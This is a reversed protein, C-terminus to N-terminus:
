AGSPLMPPAQVETGDRAPADSDATVLHEDELEEDGVWSQPRGDRKWLIRHHIKSVRSFTSTCLPKDDALWKFTCVFDMWRYGDGALYRAVGRIRSVTVLGLTETRHTTAIADDPLVSGLENHTPAINKGEPVQLSERIAEKDKPHLLGGIPAGISEWPEMALVTAATQNTYVNFGQRDTTDIVDNSTECIDKFDDDSATRAPFLDANEVRSILTLRAEQPSYYLVAHLKLRSLAGPLGDVPGLIGLDVAVRPYFPAGDELM